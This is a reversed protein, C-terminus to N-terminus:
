VNKRDGLWSELIIQAAVPDLGSKSKLRKRAEYSTLREDATIVQLHYRGELQRVFKEANDTAPQRSEDMNIPIGVILADPKWHDILLSIKKWDPKLNKVTITELPSATGTLSQGVAVGIRKEGFDFCLYTEESM